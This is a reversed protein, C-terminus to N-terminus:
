SIIYMVVGTVQLSRMQSGSADLLSASKLPQQASITLLEAFPNPYISAILDAEGIGSSGCPSSYDAYAVYTHASDSYEAVTECLYSSHEFNTMYPRFFGQVSGIKEIISDHNSLHFVKLPTNDPWIYEEWTTISDIIVATNPPDADMYATDGPQLSFDYLLQWTGTIFGTTFEPSIQGSKRFWIQTDNGYLHGIPGNEHIQMLSDNMPDPYSFRYISHLQLDPDHTVHQEWQEISGNPLAPLQAEALQAAVLCILLIFYPLKM